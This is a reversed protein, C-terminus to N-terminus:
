NSFSWGTQCIEKKPDNLDLGSDKREERLENIVVALAETPFEAMLEQRALIKFKVTSLPFNSFSSFFV